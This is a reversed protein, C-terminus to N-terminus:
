PVAVSRGDFALDRRGAKLGARDAPGDPTVAAPRQARVDAIRVGEGTYSSLRPLRRDGPARGQRDQDAPRVTTRVQDSPIAFGVGINGSQAGASATGPAARHGLQGRHGRGATDVLPGGSNGPNIAADTQIANIFSPSTAGRGATVPRNLASVIGTPSRATLGLPSGVAIVPDGVM